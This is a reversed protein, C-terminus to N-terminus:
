VMIPSKGAKCDAICWSKSVNASCSSFVGVFRALEAKGSKFMLKDSLSITLDDVELKTHIYNEIKHEAAYANVRKEIERLQDQSRAAGLAFLM